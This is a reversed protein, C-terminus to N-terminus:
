RYTDFGSRNLNIECKSMRAWLRSPVSGPDSQADRWTDWANGFTEADKARGVWFVTELNDRMLPMWVEARYGYDKGWANFDEVIAMYEGLDCSLKFEIVDLYDAMTTAPFALLLAAILTKM